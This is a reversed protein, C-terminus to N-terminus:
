EDRVQRPREAPASRRDNEEEAIRRQLTRMLSILMRRLLDLKPQLSAYRAKDIVGADVALGLHADLENYSSLAMDAFRLFDPRTERGCGEALTGAISTAARIAQSRLGPVKRATRPPLAEIVQLSVESALHWVRLKKFDQM